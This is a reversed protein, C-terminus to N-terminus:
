SLAEKKDTITVQRCFKKTIEDYCNECLIFEHVQLDKKSFYGWDKKVFLADEKLLDHDTELERGCANCYIQKKEAM